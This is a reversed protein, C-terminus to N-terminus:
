SEVEQKKHHLRTIGMLVLTILPIEIISLHFLYFEFWGMAMLGCFYSLIVYIFINGTHMASLKLAYMLSSAILTYIVFEWVNSYVHLTGFFTRVNTLDIGTHHYYPNVPSLINPDGTLTKYINVFPSVIIEFDGRDPMGIQMDYSYGLTGSTFYHFFHGTVFEFLEMNAEGSENGILPLVMYTIIFIAFGGLFVKALLSLSLHMKHAYLRMCMGSVIAIIVAGKVMYLFQVSLLLATIIWLWWKKKTIYYTAIIVLPMVVERLHAWIGHGSFEEAFDDTGFLETTSSLVTMFRYFFAISIIISLVGLSWPYSGEEIKAEFLAPSKKVLMGMLYSPIAFLILGVNWVFISPYHFDVFGFRGAVAITILLVVTYPLMLCCLPTYITKWYLYELYTLVFVELLLTALLLCGLM